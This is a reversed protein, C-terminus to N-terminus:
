NGYKQRSSWTNSGDVEEMPLLEWWKDVPYTEQDDSYVQASDYSSLFILNGSRM